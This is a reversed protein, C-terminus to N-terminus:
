TQHPNDCARYAATHKHRHGSTILSFTEPNLDRSDVVSSHKNIGRPASDNDSGVVHLVTNSSSHSSNRTQYTNNYTHCTNSCTHHNNICTHHNNSRTHRTNNRTINRPSPHQQSSATHQQSHLPYRQPHPPHPPHPQLHSPHQQPRPPHHQLQPAQHQPDPPPHRQPDQQPYSPYFYGCRQQEQNGNCEPHHIPYCPGNGDMAPPLPPSPPLPPPIHTPMGASPRPPRSGDAPEPPLGVHHQTPGARTFSPATVLQRGHGFFELGPSADTNTSPINNNDFTIKSNLWTETHEEHVIVPKVDTTKYTLDLAGCEEGVVAVDDSESCHHSMDLANGAEDTVLTPLDISDDSAEYLVVDVHSDPTVSKEAHEDSAREKAKRKEDEIESQITSILLQRILEEIAFDFKKFSNGNQDNNNTTTNDNSPSSDCENDYKELHPINSSRKSRKAPVEDLKEELMRKLLDPLGLDRTPLSRSSGIVRGRSKRNVTRESDMHDNQPLGPHLDNRNMVGVHQSGTEPRVSYNVAAGEAPLPGNYTVNSEGSGAVAGPRTWSILPDPCIKHLWCKIQIRCVM